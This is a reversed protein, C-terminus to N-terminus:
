KKKSSEMPTHLHNYQLFNGWKEGNISYSQANGNHDFEVCPIYQHFYFSNEILFDYIEEAKEVNHNNILTLINFDINNKQLTRIGAIVKNFTGKGDNFKRYYDHIHEPGDLSVGVLFKYRALFDAFEDNILSANTQLSNSVISGPKGYKKQLEVVNEFFKLGMISPEGGQWGFIYIDQKTKMYSSIIRELTEMSMRHIKNEPYLSKKKLYFCYTCNMNCDASTPKLLLTFNKM